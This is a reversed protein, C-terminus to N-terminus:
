ELSGLLQGNRSRCAAQLAAHNSALAIRSMCPRRDQAARLFIREHSPATAVLPRRRHSNLPPPWATSAPKRTPSSSTFTFAVGVAPLSAHKSMPLTRALFSCTRQMRALLHPLGPDAHKGALTGTVSTFSARQKHRCCLSWMHNSPCRRDWLPGQSRTRYVEGGSTCEAQSKKPRISCM